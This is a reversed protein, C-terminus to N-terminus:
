NDSTAPDADLEEGGNVLLRLDANVDRAPTGIFDRLLSDEPYSALLYQGKLHGSKFDLLQSHAVSTFLLILAGFVARM